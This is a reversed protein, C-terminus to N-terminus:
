NVRVRRKGTLLQQMLAKKEQRLRSLDSELTTIEEDATTLVAAIAKQEPLPPIFWYMGEIDSPKLNNISTGSLIIEIKDRYFTSEFLSFIFRPSSSKNTRFISCFSGVTEIPKEGSYYASKGVLNKSGNAMCIFIDGNSLIKEKKVIKSDVKITDSYSIKGNQINNARLLVYSQPADLNDPKYTVGRICKGIERFAVTSWEGSFGPLRKKGTLLQQMLAKKQQQSNALLKETGEIARDWTSLIAAIKKQESLPPLPLPLDGILDTNLNPQGVGSAVARRLYETKSLLHYYLYEKEAGKIDIIMAIGDNAGSKIKSIKPIGLTAGSNSLMLTDPPTIRTHKAGEKTLRTKTKYIFMSENSTIEAVTIWPLFDGNFYVPSGAPRPSSGRVIKSIKKLLVGKWENPLLGAVTKNPM